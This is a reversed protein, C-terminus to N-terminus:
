RRGEPFIMNDLRAFVDKFGEAYMARRVSERSKFYNSLHKITITQPGGSIPIICSTEKIEFKRMDTVSSVADLKVLSHGEILVDGLMLDLVIFLGVNQQNFFEDLVTKKPEFSIFFSNSRLDIVGITDQELRVAVDRYKAINLKLKPMIMLVKSSIQKDMKLYHHYAGVFTKLYRCEGYSKIYLVKKVSTPVTYSSFLFPTSPKTKREMDIVLKQLKDLEVSTREHGNELEDILKTSEKLMDVVDINIQNSLTLSKEVNSVATNLTKMWFDNSVLKELADVSSTSIAAISKALTELDESSQKMTMGTSKYSTILYSLVEEDSLYDESDYIDANLGTFICYYLPNINKNIYIVKSVRGGLNTLEKVIDLDSDSSSHFIVCDIVSWDINKFTKVTRIGQLSYVNLTILIASNM